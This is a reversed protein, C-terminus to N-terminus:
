KMEILTNNRIKSLYNNSYLNLLNNKKTIIIKEKLENKDIEDIKLNKTNLLKLFLISNSQIIAQTINGPKLNILKEQVKSSLSTSDIWGM